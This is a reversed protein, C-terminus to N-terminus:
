LSKWKRNKFFLVRIHFECEMGGESHAKKCEDSQYSGSRGNLSFNENELAFFSVFALCTGSACCSFIAYVTFVSLAEIGGRKGEDVGEFGGHGDGSGRESEFGFGDGNVGFGERDFAGFACAKLEIVVFLGDGDVIGVELDGAAGTGGVSGDIAESIDDDAVVFVCACFSACARVVEDEASLMAVAAMRRDKRAGVVGNVSGIGGGDTAGGIGDRCVSRMSNRHASERVTDGRLVGRKVSNGDSSFLVVNGSVVGGSDSPLIVTICPCMGGSDSPLIVTICPCMGGSDSPLIVTICPCMGGSDSPLIVTICPCMGGSDSPLIVTDCRGM